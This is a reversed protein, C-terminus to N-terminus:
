RRLTRAPAPDSRNWSERSGIATAEPDANEVVGIKHEYALKGGIWGSTGLILFTAIELITVTMPFSATPAKLAWRLWWALAYLLIAAINIVMHATALKRGAASMIVSTYDILGFIAALLASLIGVTLCVFSFQYWFPVHTIISAVDGVIVLSFAGIPVPVLMPHIPHGAISAKSKM